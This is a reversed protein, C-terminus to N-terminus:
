ISFGRWIGIASIITGAAGMLNMLIFFIRKLSEAHFILSIAGLVLSVELFLTASDLLNGIGDLASEKEEWEEAGVVLGYAGDVDQAWNEEGVTASGQLIETKEREYRDVESQFNEMMANVADIRDPEITGAEVLAALIDRQGKVLTQKISKSEYWSYASEMENLAIMQDDGFRGSMLNTIALMAALFALIVGCTMEFNRGSEPTDREQNSEL